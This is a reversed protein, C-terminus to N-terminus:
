ILEARTYANTSGGLNPTSINALRYFEGAHEIEDDPGLIVTYPLTVAGRAQLEEGERTRIVHSSLQIHGTVDETASVPTALTGYPGAEYHHVIIEHEFLWDPTLAASM